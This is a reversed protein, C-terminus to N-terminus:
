VWTNTLDDTDIRGSVVATRGNTDVGIDEVDDFIEDSRDNEDIWDEIDDVDIDNASDFVIVAELRTSEGDVQVSYGNAVAEDFRGREVDTGDREPFTHGYQVAAPSLTDTLTAFDEEEDVYRDEEGIRTDVITEVVEDGDDHSGVRAVILSDSSVGVGRHDDPSLFIRYGEYDDDEEDFDADDLEDIVNETDYQGTLVANRDFRLVSDIEEIDLDLVSYQDETAEITDYVEEDFDDENDVFTPPEVFSVWYHDEDRITGPEYLWDVSTAIGSRALPVEGICGALAGVGLIGGMKLAQRRTVSRGRGTM